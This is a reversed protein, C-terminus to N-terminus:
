NLKQVNRRRYSKGEMRTFWGGSMEILRDLNAEDSVESGDPDVGGLYRGIGMISQNATLIIPKHRKYRGDIISFHVRQVFRLDAVKRKGVDDIILLPVALLSNIIDSESERFQREEPNYNYTATIHLLLEPESVFRVPCIGPKGDWRDLIKNAIAAALHTKGVGWSSESFLVMSKYGEGRSEIPFNNAYEWALDYAKHIQNNVGPLKFTSFDENIYRTDLGCSNRYHRRKKMVENKREAEAAKRDEEDRKERCVPCIGRGLIRDEYTWEYFSEPIEGYRYSDGHKALAEMAQDSTKLRKVPWRYKEGQYGGGCELCICEEKGLSEPRQLSASIPLMLNDRPGDENFKNM